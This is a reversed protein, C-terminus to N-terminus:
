STTLVAKVVVDKDNQYNAYRVLGDDITKEGVTLKVTGSSIKTPNQVQIVFTTEAYKYRIEYKDWEPTICPKIRFGEPELHLGLISTLGAQYLWGASGTYWSWGARGEFPKAAYVDGCLVYPEGMYVDAKAKSDTHTIPNILQFYRLAREGDGLAAAAMVVWVAAHTYQGGNERVGPLYGKIYGPTLVGDNFPPDFLKIVGLKEDVLRSYVSEMATKLRDPQALGSLVGWTQPLSDIQCEDNVSSGLPTGDDFFARKYWSGDWTHEEVSQVVSQIVDRFKKARDVEVAESSREVIPLFEKLCLPLFWGLWVSEGRGDKGVENMGDNWDGVGMLPLGHSGFTFGRELARVCHEYFSGRQDSTRPVIYAEHEHEGLIPGDLYSVVEDLISYDATAQLYKAAVLPMWLYDDSIKTRVGKGTPPHWWHQVDGEPFQRSAHLLLQARVLEPKSYLLALVDQLQDRFGFAGGSQYLGTRGYLRSTLVQYTLWGNLLYDFQKNPTKVQVTTVANTLDRANREDINGASSNLKTSVKRAEEVSNFEGLYFLIEKEGGAPLVVEVQLASCPDFGAGTKKHLLFSGTVAKDLALPCRLSRNRGVFEARSATYSVAATNSGVAVVRGAFDSSYSNTVFLAQSLADFSVTQYRAMEERMIGLVLESYFVLDLKKVTRATNKLKLSIYKIADEGSVSLKLVSSIESYNTSFSSSGFNHKVIYEGGHSAPEPTASWYEGTVADRIYIVEGAPDSVPDNSWQTLRNERSNDSWTYGAGSESVLFGFKQNAVVNAYPLPPRKESVQLQYAKGDEVFGGYSNEFERKLTPAVFKRAASRKLKPVHEGQREDIKIQERLGGLSGNLVVRAVKQLLEREEESMQTTSRLFIGGPREALAASLSGRILSEIEEQLIQLYGGPYENIFVLDFTIGRQRLYTHAALLEQVLKIEKSDTIRALVIPLDGSIGFRWLNQQPMKNRQIVESQGRLSAINFLLANALKQFSPFLKASAQENRLEVSAQSWAMEYARSIQYLERYRRILEYLKEKTDAYGSIFNLSESHGAEIEIGTRLAFVPDLISGQNGALKQGISIPNGANRGRGLFTFRSSDYQVPEWVTKMTLMHFFFQQKEQKSRPRRSFVLCDFDPLFESQIFMKSFAPHAQDGRISNLVVEAYSTAEISRKQLSQNILTLRRIEVNDEPSVSIETHTFINRDRRKFEAKDPSFFVEYTEPEVCTPQYTSSWVFGSSKDRLYIYSGSQNSALDEKWRTLGFDRDFVSFGSGANDVMISYHSNSLLHTRPITTHPTDIVTANVATAGDDEREIDAPQTVPTSVTSVRDPFREQLLLETARILPDSHFLEQIFKDCLLNAASCLSMGQHHAFFNQVIHRRENGVLRQLTYDIAEYFGYEGFSGEAELAHFNKIALEPSIHLAMATSYPSIVLDDELGRKLGLGPVGFARYQYTKHFDVGSFSSESIGWPVGRKQAYAIQARVVAKYTESLITGEYDKTVILPMLYEFMTGSWSLLLIGGPSDALARGLSFWHRQSIQGLAIAVLGALRAESALLDYYSQDRRANDVLYGIAFLERESDFLFGFEHESIITSSKETLAEGLERQTVFYKKAEGIQSVFQDQSSDDSLAVTAADCFEIFNVISPVLNFQAALTAKATENLENIWLCYPSLAILDNFDREFKPDKFNLKKNDEAEKLKALSDAVTGITDLRLDAFASNGVGDALRILNKLQESSLINYTTIDKLFARIAIFHGVLNGSDVTSVYRPHLPALSICDYWNLFHGRFRELRSLTEFTKSFREIVTVSSIFGLKYASISSLLSLSINTPSTRQAVIREPVLQINDPVLHNNEDTLLERFYHWTKLAIQYLYEKDPESVESIDSKIPKSLAYAYLPSLFWLLFLPSHGIFVSPNRALLGLSLITLLLLTSKFERVFSLPTAALRKDANYATEWELLNNKSIFVRYLTRSIADLMIITQHPLMAITFLTQKSMLILDRGVGRLHGRLSTSVSQPILFAQAINAYVPFAIVFFAFLTEEYPRPLGLWALCLGLFLAPAVLSRRLNDLMKWQQLPPLVNKESKITAPEASSLSPSPLNADSLNASSLNASPVRPFLWPLLQWDGRVWRHLRRSYVHYKSPFDDFLEIDTALGVRCFNGEFLDHSLLANEPVRENLATHFAHLDYLGKGVFSGEGFLDQYIESVTESYPDLGAHGAFVKAFTSAHASTLATGIRPQIIGYGEVVRNTKEDFVPQNLPHAATGIMRQVSGRPLQSDNDLTIVYKIGALQKALLIKSEEEIIFDSTKSFDLLLQNFQEIKGRKREWAMWKNQAPNFRRRRFLIFFNSKHRENLENVKLRAFSMLEEDNDLVEATADRVDSLIGFVLHEDANALYRVELGEVTKAISDHDTFLAHVVVASKLEEPIGRQFDLKPLHDPRVLRTVIWQILNSVLESAPIVALLFLTLTLAVGNFNLGRLLWLALACSGLAITSLYFLFYHKRLLLVFKVFGSDKIGLEKKLLSNDKLLYNTVSSEKIWRLKEAHQDPESARNAKEALRVAANAVEAETIKYTKAIVELNHRSIDRTKFDSKPYIQAPDKRLTQEVLSVSEVWSKWDIYGITKLSTVSNGISIQDAALSYQENRLIEEPESGHERLREELWQLTITAKRGRERLRRILYPGGTALLQPQAKLKSALVLLMETGARSEDGVIEDIFEEALKREGRVGVFRGALNSINEVLAFRLMIPIAWLEGLTLHAYTQFGSIFASLLNSDVVSDSKSLLELALEYVRPYGKHPGSVLKTLTKDYGRPFDRNISQIQEQIIHYNDILWEAGPTLLDRGIAAESLIKHSAEITETHSHFAQYLETSSKKSLDAAQSRALKAAYESLADRTLGEPRSLRERILKLKSTPYLERKKPLEKYFSSGEGGVLAEFLKRLPELM